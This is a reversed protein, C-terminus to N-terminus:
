GYNFGVLYVNNFGLLCLQFGLLSTENELPSDDCPTINFVTPPKIKVFVMYHKLDFTKYQVM